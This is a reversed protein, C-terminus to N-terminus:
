KKICFFSNRSVNKYIAGTKINKLDYNGGASYDVVNVEPTDGNKLQEDTADYCITADKCYCKFNDFHSLHEQKQQEALQELKAPLEAVSVNHKKALFLTQKSIRGM